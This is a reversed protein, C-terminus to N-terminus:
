TLERNEAAPDEMKLLQWIRAAAADFKKPLDDEWWSRTDPQRVKCNDPGIPKSKDLHHILCKPKFGNDIAWIYFPRFRSWVPDRQSKRSWFNYLSYGAPTMKIEKDTMM